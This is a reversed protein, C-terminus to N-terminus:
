RSPMFTWTVRSYRWHKGNPDPTVREKWAGDEDRQVTLRTWSYEGREYGFTEGDDDYLLIGGPKEGYHRVELPLVEDPGPAFLRGEIMPVLGGDKVFLPIEDLAPTVEVVEAEGVLQGTYFDFWKGAPLVVKRSKSGPSIPALTM